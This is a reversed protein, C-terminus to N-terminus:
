TKQNMIWNKRNNLIKHANKMYTKYKECIKFLIRRKEIVSYRKEPLVDNLNHDVETKITAHYVYCTFAVTKPNETIILLLLNYLHKANFSSESIQLENFARIKAHNLLTKAKKLWYKKTKFLEYFKENSILVDLNFTTNVNCNKGKGLNWKTCLNHCILHFCVEFTIYRNKESFTNIRVMNFILTFYKELGYEICISVLIPDKIKTKFMPKYPTRTKHWGPSFSFGLPFQKEENDSDKLIMWNRFLFNYNNNFLCIQNADKHLPIFKKSEVIDPKFIDGKKPRFSEEEYIEDSNSNNYLDTENSSCSIDSDDNNFISKTNKSYELIREAYIKENRQMKLALSIDQKLIEETKKKKFHIIDKTNDFDDNLKKLPSLFNNIDNPNNPNEMIFTKDLLHSLNKKTASKHMNLNISQKQTLYTLQELSNNRDYFNYIQNNTTSELDNPFMVQFGKFSNQYASSINSSQCNYENIRTPLHVSDILMPIKSMTKSNAIMSSEFKKIPHKFGDKYSLCINESNRFNKKIYSKVVNIQINLLTYFEYTITKFKYINIKHKNLISIQKASLNLIKQHIEKNKPQNIFNNTLLWAQKKADMNKIFTESRITKISANTKDLNDQTYICCTNSKKTNKAADFLIQDSVKMLNDANKNLTDLQLKGLPEDTMIDKIQLSIDKYNKKYVMSNYHAINQDNNKNEIIKKQMQSVIKDDFFLNFFEDNINVNDFFTNSPISENNESEFFLSDLSVVNEKMLVANPSNQTTYIIILICFELKM